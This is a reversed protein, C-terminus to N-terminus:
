APAPSRPSEQASSSWSITRGTLPLPNNAARAGRGDGAVGDRRRHEFRSRLRHGNGGVATRRHPPLDGPRRRGRHRRDHHHRSEGRHRAGRRQGDRRGDRQEVLRGAASSRSCRTPPTARWSPRRCPRGRRSAPDTASVSVEGGPGSVDARLDGAWRRRRHRRDHHHRAGVGRYAPAPFRPSEGTASSRRSPVGTLPLPNNAADRAVVTAQLTRQRRRHESDPASVTVTAVSPPAVTLLFTAPGVGDVTVGITTTGPSVATILGGGDVTAVSTASSSWM